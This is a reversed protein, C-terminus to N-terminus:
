QLLVIPVINVLLIPTSVLPPSQGPSFATKRPTVLAASFISELDDTEPISEFPEERGALEHYQITSRGSSDHLLAPCNESRRVFTM